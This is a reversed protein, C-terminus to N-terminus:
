SFAWDREALNALVARAARRQADQTGNLAAHLLPLAHDPDLLALTSATVFRLQEDEDPDAFMGALLDFVRKDGVTGLAWVASQRIDDLEDHRAAMLADISLDSSIAGLLFLARWRSEVAQSKDALHQILRFQAAAGASHLQDEAHFRQWIDDTSLNQIATEIMTM